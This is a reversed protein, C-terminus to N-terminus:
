ARTEIDTLDSTAHAESLLGFDLSNLLEKHCPLMEPQGAILVRQVCREHVSSRAWEGAFVRRACAVGLAGVSEGLSALSCRCSCMTILAAQGCANMVGWRSDGSSSSIYQRESESSSDFPDPIFQGRFKSDPAFPGRFIHDIM